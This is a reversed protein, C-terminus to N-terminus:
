KYIAKKGALLTNRMLSIITMPGVGGPVPTIYSCKPAVESFLVDGTLKFGSKTHSSPMRTTGVDIVVAGEKVMDGKLFEPVGLAVIIIDASLSAMGIFQGGDKYGAEVWVSSAADNSDETWNTEDGVASYHVENATFVVVRGSRIYVGRCTDPSSTLTELAKGNYYQLHGGSAILLGDEWSACIPYLGGTLTGLRETTVLDSAYVAKDADVLLAKGNIEDWAAAFITGGTLTLVDVTGSVTKLRNTASDLEMNLVDALENDGISAVSAAKNLGGSFDAVAITQQTPHKTSLRM